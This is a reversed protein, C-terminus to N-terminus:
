ARPLTPRTPATMMPRLPCRHTRGPAALLEHARAASQAARCQPAARAGGPRAQQGEAPLAM